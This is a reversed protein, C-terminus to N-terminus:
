CNEVINGIINFLEEFISLKYNFLIFENINCYCLVGM